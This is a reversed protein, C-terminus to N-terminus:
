KLDPDQAADAKTYLTAPILPEQTFDEGAQYKMILQVIQRGMKDPHQIPEAFIQGKKIAQQGEPMGDFAIIKIHDQRKAEEVANYAGLASPANIAFIADLDEFAQLAAATSQRGEKRAGNGDVEAVIVIKGSTGGANHANIM